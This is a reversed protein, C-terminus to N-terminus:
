RTELMYRRGGLRDATLTLRFGRGFTPSHCWGEADPTQVEYGDLGPLLVDFRRRDDRFDILWMEGIGARYYAEPLLVTDKRVSSPSVVECVWDPTGEMENPRERGAPTRGPRLRGTALTDWSAFSADPNNSVGGLLNTILLGDPYYRGLDHTQVLLGLTTNLAGKILIHTEPNENSMDAIFEGHVFTFRPGQEPAHTTAWHRFEELTGPLEAALHLEDLEPTIITAPM